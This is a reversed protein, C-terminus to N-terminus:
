VTPPPKLLQTALAALETTREGELLGRFAIDFIPMMVHHVAGLIAIIYAAQEPSIDTRCLGRDMLLRMIRVITTYGRAGNDESYTGALGSGESIMEKHLVFLSPSNEFHEDIMTVLRAVSVDESAPDRCDKEFARLKRVLPLFNAEFIALLLGSKSNFYYNIMAQNVGAKEAIRRVSVNSTKEDAICQDAAALLADHIRREESQSRTPRGKARRERPTGSGAPSNDDTVGM